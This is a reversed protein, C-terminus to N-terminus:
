SLPDVLLSPLFLGITDGLPKWLLDIALFQISEKKGGRKKGHAPCDATQFFHLYPLDFLAM